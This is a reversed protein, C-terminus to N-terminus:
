STISDQMIEQRLTLYEKGSDTISFFEKLDFKENRNPPRECRM